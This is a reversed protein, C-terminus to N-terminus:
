CLNDYNQGCRFMSRLYSFNIDSNIALCLDNLTVASHFFVKFHYYSYNGKTADYDAFYTPLTIIWFSLVEPIKDNLSTHITSFYNKYGGIKLEASAGFSYHPRKEVGM